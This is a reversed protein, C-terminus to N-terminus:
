AYILMLRTKEVEPIPTIAIFQTFSYKINNLWWEKYGDAWEVAPGYERHLENNLWWAKYGDAYEIAPGDTRHTKDHLCWRKTGDEDIELTPQEEEIIKDM